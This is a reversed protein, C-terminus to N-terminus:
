VRPPEVAHCHTHAQRDRGRACAHRAHASPLMEGLVVPPRMKVQQKAIILMGTATTHKPRQAACSRAKKSYTRADSVGGRTEGHGIGTPAAGRAATM